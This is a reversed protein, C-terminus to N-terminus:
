ENTVPEGLYENRHYSNEKWQNFDKRANALVIKKFKQDTSYIYCRSELVENEFVHLLSFMRCDQMEILYVEHGNARKSEKIIKYHVFPLNM